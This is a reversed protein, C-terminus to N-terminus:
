EEKMEQIMSEWKSYDIERKDDVPTEEQTSVDESADREQTEEPATEDIIEAEEILEEGMMRQEDEEESRVTVLTGEYAPTKRKNLISVERLEMDKVKRIPMGEEVAREVGDPVDKFGFSWGVLNGARGDDIVEKDYIDARAHLGIADEELFLNGDKTGGLDREPNHNLLIRVNDNRELAKSFAGKCIREIFSGFRDRLTRSNREVANVYGEVTIHDERILIKM